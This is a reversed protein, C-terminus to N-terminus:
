GFFQVTGPGAPRQPLKENYNLPANSFSRSETRYKEHPDVANFLQTMEDRNLGGVARVLPVIPVTSALKQAEEFSSPRRSFVNVDRYSPGEVNIFSM